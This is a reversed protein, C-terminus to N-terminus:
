FESNADDRGIYENYMEKIEKIEIIMKAQGKITSRQIIIIALGALIIMILLVIIIKM